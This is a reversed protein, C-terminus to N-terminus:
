EGYSVVIIRSCCWSYLGKQVKVLFSTFLWISPASIQRRLAPSYVSAAILARGLTPVDPSGLMASKCHRNDSIQRQARPAESGVVRGLAYNRREKPPQRVSLLRGPADITFFLCSEFLIDGRQANGGSMWPAAFPRKGGLSSLKRARLVPRDAFSARASTVDDDVQWM